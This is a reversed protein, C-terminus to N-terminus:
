HTCNCRDAGKESLDDLIFQLAAELEKLEKLEKLTSDDPEDTGVTFCVINKIRCDGSGIQNNSETELPIFTIDAQHTGHHSIHLTGSLCYDSDDPLIGSVQCSIFGPHNHLTNLCMNKIKETDKEPIQKNTSQTKM